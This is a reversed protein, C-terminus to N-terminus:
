ISINFKKVYVNRAGGVKENPICIHIHFLMLVVSIFIIIIFTGVYSTLITAHVTSSNTEDLYGLSFCPLLFFKKAKKLM